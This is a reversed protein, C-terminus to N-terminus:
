NNAGATMARREFIKHVRPGYLSVNKAQTGSRHPDPDYTFIATVRTRKGVVPTVGHLSCGGRFLTLTGASRPMTRVVDPDGDLVRNIANLNPDGAESRTDAGYIFEGGSEAERLLLTVTCENSDHHCVTHQGEGLAIVNLAQFEDAFRYLKPKGQVRAVLETVADWEYLQRLLSGEDFQDNALHSSGTTWFRRAPHDSPLSPDVESQYLFNVTWTRHYADSQLADAEAALKRAGEETLFGQLNCAGTNQFENTWTNSLGAMEPEELDHLPYRDLDVLRAIEPVPTTPM